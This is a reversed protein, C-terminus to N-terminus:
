TGADDQFSLLKAGWGDKGIKNRERNIKEDDDDLLDKYTQWRISPDGDLLWSIIKNAKVM